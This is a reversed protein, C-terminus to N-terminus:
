KREKELLDHCLATSEEIEMASAPRAVATYGTTKGDSVIPSIHVYAWYYKGDKRLNKLVGTWEKGEHITEWLEQFLLKPMDPCRIINHGKGILEEKTYGSIDCFKRNTYTIVGELNTSSVILGDEFPYEEIIPNPRDM